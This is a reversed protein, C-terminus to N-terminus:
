HVLNGIHHSSTAFFRLKPTMKPRKPRKERRMRLFLGSVAEPKCGSGLFRNLVGFERYSTSKTHFITMQHYNHDNKDAASADNQPKQGM